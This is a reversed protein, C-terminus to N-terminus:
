PEFFGPEPADFHEASVAALAGAIVDVANRTAQDDHEQILWALVDRTTEIEDWTVVIM